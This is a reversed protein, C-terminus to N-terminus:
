RSSYGASATTQPQADPPQAGPSPAAPAACDIDACVYRTTVFRGRQESVENVCAYLRTAGCGDIQVANLQLDPRDKVRMGDLSCKTANYHRLMAAAEMSDTAVGNPFAKPGTHQGLLVGGDILLCGNLTLALVLFSLLRTM